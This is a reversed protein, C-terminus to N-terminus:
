CRAIVGHRWFSCVTSWLCSFM